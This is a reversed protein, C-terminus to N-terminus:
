APQGKYPCYWYKGTKLELQEMQKIMNVTQKKADKGKTM